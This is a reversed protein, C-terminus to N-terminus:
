ARSAETLFDNTPWVHWARDLVETLPPVYFSDEARAWIEWIVLAGVFVVM